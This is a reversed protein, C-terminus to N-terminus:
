GAQARHRVYNEVFMLGSPGARRVISLLTEMTTVEELQENVFWRLFDQALYDSEKVAQDMLATIQRTVEQEWELSLKLANEASGIDAKPAEVAPITVKGGTEVVYHLLKMAHEREEASQAYFFKGLEPLVERDFYVAIALYQHSAGLERGIQASIAASLKESIMM